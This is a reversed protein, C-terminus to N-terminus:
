LNKWFAAISPLFASLFSGPVKIGRFISFLVEGVRRRRLRGQSLCVLPWCWQPRIPSPSAEYTGSFFEPPQPEFGLFIVRHPGKPAAALLFTEDFSFHLILIRQRAFRHFGFSDFSPSQSMLTKPGRHPRGLLGLFFIPFSVKPFLLARLYVEETLTQSLFRRTQCFYLSVGALPAPARALTLFPPLLPCRFSPSGCNPGNRSREYFVGESLRDNPNSFSRVLDSRPGRPSFFV